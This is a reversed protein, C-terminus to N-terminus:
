APPIWGAPISGGVAKVCDPAGAPSSIGSLERAERIVRRTLCTIFRASWWAASQFAARVNLVINIGAQDGTKV